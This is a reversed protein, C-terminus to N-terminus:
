GGGRVGVEVVVAEFVYKLSASAMAPSSPFSREGGTVGAVLALKLSDIAWIGVGDPLRGLGYTRM